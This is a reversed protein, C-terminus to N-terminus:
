AAYKTEPMQFFSRIRDPRKQLCKLHSVTKRHFDDPGKIITRGLGNNKLDNWVQEDPNLEPSYPPLFFLKLKGAYSDVLTTVRGAKHAPHGDVILFVPRVADHMLRKLFECFEVAGVRGKVIMFRMEGKPSIASLINLRFRAGTTRVIPTKGKLAWTRGAHHESQVGAEDEFFIQAKQQKAARQIKPYEEKLWQEVLAGNQQLARYLPKQCTLGLQALLRGISALSLSVGFRSKILGQIMRRTWLAFEFKLQLPSKLTVADYIFKIQRGTLTPVRGPAKRRKLADWGGARYKSLWDYITTRNIGLARAIIEPSEGDQVSQVARM